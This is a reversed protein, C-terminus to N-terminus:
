TTLFKRPLSIRLGFGKEPFLITKTGDNDAIISSVLWMGLGTGEEEGTHKNRKTTFLADFIRDPRDIDTSLGPGNDSYDITIDRQQSDLNITITRDTVTRNLIFADISNVILNNFISDLDIEFVRLALEDSGNLNIVLKIERNEFVTKWTEALSAFYGSLYVKKRKRKDKRAASLSFKLWNQLKMDQRRMKTMFAYPNLFQPTDAFEEPPLKEKILYELDDIRSGMVDNLNGLEHTFSAIVIGSSALGRLIKQEDELKEIIEDKEKNLEALIVLQNSNFQAQGSQSSQANETDSPPTANETPEGNAAAERERQRRDLISQALKQAAARDKIESNKEDFFLLMEKALYGRDEEFISIIGEIIEKFIQFSKNEQLGERSSKDEFDINALRSITIAGAINDPEVKYGGEPKSVAAPSKSKRAGLGLWDFSTNSIEGYPRVRFSDRFLKVGGYKNLWEKRENAGFRRYSFKALDPSSYTRKMFYFTFEFAGIKELIHDEDVLKFGPVLQGFTKEGTWSGKQLDEKRYPYTALAPRKYFNPDILDLDYENRFIEFTVKQNEDAKAVLKYEYDDCVSGEVRGYEAPKEASYLYIKFTEIDEAPVLVQLDSFVQEVNFDNWNERLQSIKLITGSTFKFEEIIEDIQAVPCCERVISAFDMEDVGDLDAEVKDITKSIGEFSRWDVNWVYGVANEDEFLNLTEVNAGKETITFDSDSKVPEVDDAHAIPDFKTTMLCTDGLKDLAFRGIGKAGAKIKGSKTFIDYAKNDTGITMWYNTIINETMGDGADVIYLSVLDHLKDKLLERNEAGVQEKVIYKDNELEFIESILDASIDNDLFYQYESLTFSNPIEVYKNDFYIICVKSDADSCNKVLEIIAGKSTAINERGILRATRASVKFPIKPM